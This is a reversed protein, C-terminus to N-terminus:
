REMGWVEQVWVEKVMEALVERASSLVPTSM